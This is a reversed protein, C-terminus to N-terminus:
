GQRLLEAATESFFAEASEAYGQLIEETVFFDDGSLPASLTAGLVREGFSVGADEYFGTYTPNTFLESHVARLDRASGGEGHKVTNAVLRIENIVEWSPLTEFDINLQEWYWTKVV